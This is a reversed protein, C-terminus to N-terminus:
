SFRQQQIAKAPLSLPLIRDHYADDWDDHQLRQSLDLLAENVRITGLSVMEEEATYVCVRYPPDYGVVIFIFTPPPDCGIVNVVADRYMAVQYHYRFDLCTWCFKEPSPDATCKLDIIAKGDGFDVLRDLKGRLRLGTYEHTWFLALESEGPLDLLMRAKRHNNISALMARAPAAESEKIWTEDAHAASWAEWAKGRRQGNATLVEAPIIPLPINRLVADHTASGLLMKPGPEIQYDAWKAIHRGYLLEPEETLLKVQSYSWEPRQHYIADALQDASRRAVGNADIEATIPDPTETNM